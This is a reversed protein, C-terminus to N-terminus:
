LDRVHSEDPKEILRRFRAQAMPLREFPRGDSSRVGRVSDIDLAGEFPVLLQAYRGPPIELVDRLSGLSRLAFALGDPLDIEGREAMGALNRLPLTGSGDPGVLLIRGDGLELSRAEGTQNFVLFRFWSLRHDGALGLDRNLLIDHDRDPRPDGWIPALVGKLGPAIEGAWVTVTAPAERRPITDGPGGPHEWPAVLWVLGATVLSVTATILVAPTWDDREM